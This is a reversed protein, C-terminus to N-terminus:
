KIRVGPPVTKEPVLIVPSGAEDSAALLMGQSEVGMMTRPELNAIFLLQRGILAEPEYVKGIGAVIQRQEEAFAVSLKLLKDSGEIREATTIQGIRLDAQQFEDITM